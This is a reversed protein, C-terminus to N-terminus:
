TPNRDYQKFVKTGQLVNNVKFKMVEKYFKMVEKYFKM